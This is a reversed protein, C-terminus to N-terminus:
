IDIEVTSDVLSEFAVSFAVVLSSQVVEDVHAIM